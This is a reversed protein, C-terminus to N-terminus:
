GRIYRMVFGAPVAIFLGAILVIEMPLLLSLIFLAGFLITDGLSAALQMFYMYPLLPEKDANKYYRSTYPTEALARGIGAFFNVGAIHPASQAFLRLASTLSILNSGHKLYGWTGRAAERKGTYLAILISAIVAISSLIGVGVYTPVLLFVFLPWVVSDVVEDVESSANAALDPAIRRLRVDRLRFPQKRIVEQGGLLPLAAAIFCVMAVIYLVWIGFYTAIAGGVAPAIGYACMTLAASLGVAGGKVKLHLLSHAFCARFQPWYLSIAVSFLVAPFWLPWHFQPITALVLIQAGYFFMSIGMARHFGIFNAFRMLPYLVVAWLVSLMLFYGVIEPLVYGLRYLYIPVFITTMTAALTRVSHAFYLRKLESLRVHHFLHQHIGHHIM